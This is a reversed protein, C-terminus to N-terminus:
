QDILCVDIYPMCTRMDCLIPMNSSATLSIQHKKEAFIKQKNFIAETTVLNSTKKNFRCTGDIDSYSYLHAVFKYSVPIREDLIYTVLM